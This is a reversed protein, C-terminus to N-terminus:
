SALGDATTTDWLASDPSDNWESFAEAYQDALRRDRLLTVAEHLTASRNAGQEDLFRVDEEPLSVSIKM